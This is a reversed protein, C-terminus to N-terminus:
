FPIEESKGTLEAFTLRKGAVQSLALLFRDSDKLPNDKTARNNYRFVQEDIYRELHFPEVAVYTGKLNRKLLSWFNELGNTHVQGRVYEQSHDVVEHIYKWRLNDYRVANDTYLNSGYKINKLIETQLTERKVNPVVQARIQRADRDLMGVVIAKGTSGGTHGNEAAFRARRDKHMNKLKGGIFTEDVEVANGEGGLKFGPNTKPKLVVRLRHLMFWATKQSVGLGRHIEYSSVGNKCNVLMWMAPLWKQLPIPSDEFITFKKVSFQNRCTRCKWRKATKIYYPNKADDFHCYPCQPGEPWRMLAVADICTQEDSFYQIAQQLTQPIGTVQEM